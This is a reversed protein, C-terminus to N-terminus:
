FDFIAPNMGFPQPSFFAPITQILFTPDDAYAALGPRFDGKRSQRIDLLQLEGVDDRLTMPQCLRAFHDLKLALMPM